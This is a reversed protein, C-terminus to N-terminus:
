RIVVCAHDCQIGFMQWAKCTCTREMLDVELFAKGNSEKMSSGLHLYTIYNESKGINLAIKEEIKPGICGNWKVLGNKHEVLLSGLKDMHEIFFVCINHHQEHRLWSNFSEALNSTMKDWRMKKFKSIAWHQPNNEKVWKALDHNFTRLTDMAVEYDCDLRAYAISDLMQLANEKVKRGKTNLKTLFSSFNEKIHRYCHAHNESGFVESVSHIIGQHRDFIIIVDREGIVMKLKELFWLWDEYNKSSFLDYALPFMGNDADYSSASFLAGKYPGSM